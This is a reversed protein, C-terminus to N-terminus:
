LLKEMVFEDYFRGEVHLERKLQGVIKFGYRQYLKVAQKQEPNINLRVKVVDKSKQIETLVAEILKKGVGQGRHERMVYVGFINGIHKRKIKSDYTHVIMGIVRDKSLAFLANEMRKRWEEESMNKEEDYSSGFAIPGKGLAELRLDRYEKWRDVELKRVVIMLLCWSMCNNLWTSLASIRKFVVIKAFITNTSGSNTALALKKTRGNKRQPNIAPMRSTAGRNVSRDLDISTDV